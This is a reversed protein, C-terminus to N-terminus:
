VTIKEFFFDEPQNLLEELYYCYWGRCEFYYGELKEKVFVIRKHNNIKVILMPYKKSFKADSECQEMWKFLDSSPNLLDWFDLSKYAKNEVCFKFEKPTIIDGSLVEKTEESVGYARYRNGAGFTAGSSVNRMFKHPKFRETLIKATERESSNGKNKSNIKSM